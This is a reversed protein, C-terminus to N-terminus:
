LPSRARVEAVKDYFTKFAPNGFRSGSNNVPPTDLAVREVKDLVSLIGIVGQSKKNACTIPVFGSWVPSVPCDDSLKVGLISENLTKIYNVIDAHTESAQFAELNEKTLIAKRPIYYSSSAM